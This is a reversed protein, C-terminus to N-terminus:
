ERRNRLMARTVRLGVRNEFLNRQPHTCTEHKKKTSTITLVLMHLSPLIGLNHKQSIYESYTKSLVADEACEYAM